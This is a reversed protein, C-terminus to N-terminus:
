TSVKEAVFGAVFRSRRRRRGSFGSFRHHEGERNEAEVNGGSIVVSHIRRRCYIPRRADVRILRNFPLTLSEKKLPKRESKLM